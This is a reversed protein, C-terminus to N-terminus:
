RMLQELACSRPDRDPLWRVFTVASRFRSGTLRDFRV